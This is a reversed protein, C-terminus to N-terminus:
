IRSRRSWGSLKERNSPDFLREMSWGMKVRKIFIGIPVGAKTAADGRSMIGWPTKIFATQRTNQRQEKPTAWCVNGPEYNGHNNERELTAGEFFGAEMDDLFLPFSHWRDCVSIGRGGYNEFDKNASYNCRELMSNWRPWLPHKRSHGGQTNRYCGCSQTSGSKLNGRRVQKETGCDCRCLWITDCYKGAKLSAKSILSIVLLRGFREGVLDKFQM